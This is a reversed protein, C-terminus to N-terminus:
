QWDLDQIAKAILLLSDFTLAQGPVCKNTDVAAAQMEAELAWPHLIYDPRAHSQALSRSLQAYHLAESVALTFSGDILSAFRQGSAGHHSSRRPEPGALRRRCHTKIRWCVAQHSVVTQCM